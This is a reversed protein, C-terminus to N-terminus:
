SVTDDAAIGKKRPRPFRRTTVGSLLHDGDEATEDFGSLGNEELRSVQV